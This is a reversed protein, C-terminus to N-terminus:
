NAELEARKEDTLMGFHLDIDGTGLKLRQDVAPVSFPAHSGVAAQHIRERVQMSVTTLTVM